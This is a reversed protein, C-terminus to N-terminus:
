SEGERVLLAVPYRELLTALPLAGGEVVRGTLADRWTGEPALLETAGWGGANELGIPLRTAITVAGGRDFAIVHASAAGAAALPV